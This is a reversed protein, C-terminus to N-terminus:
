NRLRSSGTTQDTRPWLDLYHWIVPLPIHNMLLFLQYRLVICTVEYGRQTETERKDDHLIPPHPLFFLISVLRLYNAHIGVMSEVCQESSFNWGWELEAYDLPTMIFGRTQPDAYGLWSRSSLALVCTSGQVTVQFLKVPKPGLFKQRTDTLEGTIEDLVTRLYVGSHLGIHLYLTSGGSASDEMAMINLSKPLHEPPQSLGARLRRCLWRDPNTRIWRWGMVAWWGSKPSCGRFRLLRLLSGLFLNLRLFTFALLFFRRFKSPLHCVVIVADLVSAPSRRGRDPSVVVLAHIVSAGGFRTRNCLVLDLASVLRTSTSSLLWWTRRRFRRPIM